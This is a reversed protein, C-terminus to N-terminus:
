QQNKSIQQVKEFTHFIYLLVFLDLLIISVEAKNVLYSSVLLVLQQPFQTRNSTVIQTILQLYWCERGPVRCM